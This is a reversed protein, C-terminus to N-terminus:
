EHRHGKMNDATIQQLHMQMVEIESGQTVIIEQALRKLAPSKGYLLELKAMDVAGQHHPIMMAAFDHDADGSMPANAMGKNMETMSDDMMQHFPKNSNISSENLATKPKAKELSFSDCDSEMTGMNNCEDQILQATDHALAQSAVIGCIAIITLQLKFM